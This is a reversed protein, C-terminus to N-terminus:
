STEYRNRECAARPQPATATAADGSTASDPKLAIRHVETSTAGIPRGDSSFRDANRELWARAQAQASEDLHEVNVGVAGAVNRGPAAGDPLQDDRNEPPGDEPANQEALGVDRNGGGAETTRWPVRVDGLATFRAGVRM